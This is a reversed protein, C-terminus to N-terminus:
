FKKLYLNRIPLITQTHKIEFAEKNIKLCKVHKNFLFHAKVLTQKAL